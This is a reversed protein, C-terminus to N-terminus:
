QLLDLSGGSFVDRLAGRIFITLKGYSWFTYFQHRPFTLFNWHELEFFHPGWAFCELPPPLDIRGGLWGGLSLTLRRLYGQVSLAVLGLHLPQYKKRRVSWVYCRTGRCICVRCWSCARMGPMALLGVWRCVTSYIARVAHSFRWLTSLRYAEKDLNNWWPRRPCVACARCPFARTAAPTYSISCTWFFYGSDAQFLM